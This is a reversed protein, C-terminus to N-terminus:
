AQRRREWEVVAEWRPRVEELLQLFGPEDRVETLFPDHEALFPHNIFGHDVAARVWHVADDHRGILAFADATFMAAFENQIV